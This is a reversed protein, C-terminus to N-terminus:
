RRHNCYVQIYGCIEKLEDISYMDELMTDNMGGLKEIFGVKVERKATILKEAITIPTDNEEIVIKM